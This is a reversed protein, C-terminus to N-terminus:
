NANDEDGQHTIIINAKQKQPLIYMKCMPQICENWYQVIREKPISFKVTDRAIRRSLCTDMNTDVFVKICGNMSGLLSITHLGEFVNIRGWRTVKNKAVRTNTSIDYQPMIAIGTGLLQKVDQRFEDTHFAQISDTLYGERVRPIDPLNKFYDDQSIIATTYRSQYEERIRNALTTKGSCTIGAIIVNATDGMQLKENIAKWLEM